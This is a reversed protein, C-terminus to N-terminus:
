KLPSRFLHIIYKAYIVRFLQLFLREVVACKQSYNCTSFSGPAEDIVAYGADTTLCGGHVTGTISQM